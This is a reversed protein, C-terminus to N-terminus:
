KRHSIWIAKEKIKFEVQNTKAILDLLYDISRYKTVGGSFRLDKLSSDEFFFEVNYWRSLRVTLDYLKTNDFYFAGERWATYFHTDVKNVTIEGTEEGIKAQQGPVITKVHKGKCIEVKGSVLTIEAKKENKYSMLNFSTGLVKVDAKENRVIFAKSADKKVDFYAEGNLFVERTNGTFKIPFKISTESNLWVKSGDALILSYEGGKPITVTNFVPTQAISKSNNYKIINASDINIITNHKTKITKTEAEGLQINEGSSLTLIATPKGQKSIDSFHVIKTDKEVEVETDLYFLIGVSLFIILSAAVRSALLYMKAHNRRKLKKLALATDVESLEHIKNLSYETFLKEYYQKNKESSNIWRRLESNERETLEGFRERYILDSIKFCDKKM